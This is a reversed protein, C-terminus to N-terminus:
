SSGEEKPLVSPPLLVHQVQHLPAQASSKEKRVTLRSVMRHQHDAGRILESCSFLQPSLSSLAFQWKETARGQGMPVRPSEKEGPFVLSLKVAPLCSPFVAMGLQGVWTFYWVFIMNAQTGDWCCIHENQDHIVKTEYIEPAVQLSCSRPNRERSLLVVSLPGEHM